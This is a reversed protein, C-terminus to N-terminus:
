GSWGTYAEAVLALADGTSIYGQPTRGRSRDVNPLDDDGDVADLANKITPVHDDPVTYTKSM